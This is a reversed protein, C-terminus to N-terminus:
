RPKTSSRRSRAAPKKVAAGDAPSAAPAAATSGPSPDDPPATEALPQASAAGDLRAHLANLKARLELRTEAAEIRAQITEREIRAMAADRTALGDKIDLVADEIELLRKELLGAIRALRTLDARTPLHLKVLQEDVKEEYNARAKAMGSVSKNTADLLGPSELVQDWWQAMSREWQQYLDDSLGKFDPFAADPHNM